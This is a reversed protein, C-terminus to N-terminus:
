SHTSILSMKEAVEHSPQLVAQAKQAAWENRM